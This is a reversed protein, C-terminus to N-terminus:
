ASVRWSEWLSLRQRSPCSLAYFLFCSLGAACPLIYIVIVSLLNVWKSAEPLATITSTLSFVTVKRSAMAWPMMVMFASANAATSLPVTFFPSTSPTARMAPMMAVLRVLSSMGSHWGSGSVFTLTSKLSRGSRCATSTSQVTLVAPTVPTSISARVPTEVARSVM